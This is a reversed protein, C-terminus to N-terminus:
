FKVGVGVLLGTAVPMGAEVRGAVGFRFEVNRAIPTKWCLAGGVTGRTPGNRRAAVGAFAVLDLDLWELGFVDDAVRYEYAIAVPAAAKAKFDYVVALSQGFASLSAALAALILAQKM